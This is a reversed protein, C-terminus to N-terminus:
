PFSRDVTSNQTLRTRQTIANRQGGDISRSMIGFCLNDFEAIISSLDSLSVECRNYNLKFWRILESVHYRLIEHIEESKLKTTIYHKTAVAQIHMKIKRVGYKNMIPNDTFKIWKSNEGDFEYGSLSMIFNEVEPITDIEFQNLDKNTKVLSPISDKQLYDPIGDHNRDIGTTEKVERVEENRNKKRIFM